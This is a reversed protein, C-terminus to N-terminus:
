IGDETRDDRIEIAELDEEPALPPDEFEPFDGGMQIYRILNWFVETTIADPTGPPSLLYVTDHLADLRTGAQEAKRVLQVHAREMIDRSHVPLGEVVAMVEEEVIEVDGQSNEILIQNDSTAKTETYSVGSSLTM